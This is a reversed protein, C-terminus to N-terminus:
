HPGAMKFYDLMVWVSAMNKEWWVVGGNVAANSVNQQESLQWRGCLLSVSRQIDAVEPAMPGEEAVGTLKVSVCVCVRSLVCFVCIYVDMHTVFACVEMRLGMSLCCGGCPCGTLVEEKESGTEMHQIDWLWPAKFDTENKEGKKKRDPKEGDLVSTPNKRRRRKWLAKQEGKRNVHTLNPLRSM